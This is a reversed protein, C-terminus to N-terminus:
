DLKKSRERGVLKKRTHQLGESYSVPSGILLESPLVAFYMSLQLAIPLLTHRACLLFHRCRLWRRATDDGNRCRSGHIELPVSAIAQTHKPEVAM